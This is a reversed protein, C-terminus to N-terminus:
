VPRIMALWPQAHIAELGTKYYRTHSQKEGGADLRLSGL